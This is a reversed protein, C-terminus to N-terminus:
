LGNYLCTANNSLSLGLLLCCGLLVVCVCVCFRILVHSGFFFCVILGRTKIRVVILWQKGSEQNSGHNYKNTPKEMTQNIITVYLYTEATNLNAKIQLNTTRLMVKYGMQQLPSSIRDQGHHTFVSTVNCPKSELSTLSKTSITIITTTITTITAPIIITIMIITIM